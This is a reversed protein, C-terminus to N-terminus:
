DTMCRSEDYALYDVRLWASVVGRGRYRELADPVSCLCCTRVVGLWLRVAENILDVNM